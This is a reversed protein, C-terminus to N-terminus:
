GVQLITVPRSGGPCEVRVRDGTRRGVLARALPSSESIQSAATDAEGDAAISWEEEVAGDQIRVRSGTRVVADPGGPSRDDGTQRSPTAPDRTAADPSGPGASRRVAGGSM